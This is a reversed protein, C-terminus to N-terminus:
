TSPVGPRPALERASERWRAPSSGLHRRFARSFAEESDYGVRAGVDAVKLRTGRLLEAALQLRWETLYRIPSCGLLRRFREDLVSRSSFCRTALETVSWKRSPDAHMLGLAHGAVPDQTAALWGIGDGPMGQAYLRLAEVFLMEPLRSQLAAGGPQRWASEDLAYDICAQMWKAAPGPAPRVRFAPPLRRLFPNFLLEECKLYGCVVGTNEGGGDYRCVQVGNWPPPPLLEAIAVAREHGPSGMVHRDAHPLVAVDGAQLELRAGRSSVWCRGERVIHFVILHRAGPALVRILEHSEPSDFAWPAAYEGQLFIAGSLRVRALVDSLIDQAPEIGPKAILQEPAATM